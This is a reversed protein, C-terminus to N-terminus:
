IVGSFPAISSWIKPTVEILSQLQLRFSFKSHKFPIRLPVIQSWIRMLLLPWLFCLYGLSSIHADAINRLM